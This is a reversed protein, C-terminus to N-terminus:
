TAADLVRLFLYQPGRKRARPSDVPREFFGWGERTPPQTPDSSNGELTGFHTDTVDTVFGTHTADHESAMLLFVDGPAPDTRVIGLKRGARLLEDCGATYPLPPKGRYVIGLVTMVACACWPQGKVTGGVRQMAEVWRGFNGKVERVFLFLRAIQLIYAADIM